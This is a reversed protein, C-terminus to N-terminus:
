FHSNFERLVEIRGQMVNTERRIQETEERLPKYHWGTVASGLASLGFLVAPLGLLPWWGTMAAVYVANLAFAGSVILLLQALVALAARKRTMKVM